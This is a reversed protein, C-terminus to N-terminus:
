RKAHRYGAAEAEETSNFVRLNKSSGMQEYNRDGPLHYIHSKKNGRVEVKYVSSSSSESSKKKPTEQTAIGSSEESSKSTTSSSKNLDPTSQEKSAPETKNTQASQQPAAKEASKDSPKIKENKTQQAQANVPAPVSEKALYTEIASNEKKVPTTSQVQQNQTLANDKPPQLATTCANVLNVCLGLIFVAAFIAGCGRKKM